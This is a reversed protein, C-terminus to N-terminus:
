PVDAAPLKITAPIMLSGAGSISLLITYIGRSVALSSYAAGPSAVEATSLRLSKSSLDMSLVAILSLVTTDVDEPLLFM